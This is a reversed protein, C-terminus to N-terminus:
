ATISYGLTSPLVTSGPTADALAVDIVINLEYLAPQTV